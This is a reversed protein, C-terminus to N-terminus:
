PDDAADSTYLLCTTSSIGAYSNGSLDDFADTGILVYYETSSDLTVSPNVTIQASGSGTVQGSTVDIAEIVSDDSTKKITVNGSGTNVAEDFNLVIDATSSVATDNDAPSSSTLTPDTSDVTGFFELENIQHHGGGTSTVRYRFHKYASPTPYDDGGGSYM